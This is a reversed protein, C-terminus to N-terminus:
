WLRDTALKVGEYIWGTMTKRRSFREAMRRGFDKASLRDHRALRQKDAWRQYADYFESARVAADTSYECAHEIFEGLADSDRQYENTANLVSLPADLGRAQWELCGRIAWQLIGPGENFLKAELQDDRTSGDFSQTFPILRIRRWFGPSDDHVSPKHNVALLFKACPQFTFWEGHLFRASIPDSGTLAKVRAENLRTGDNTESATVFRKGALAALDNPISQRQREITGFPMNHAYDGFVRALVNLLTSKGNAGLGHLLALVQERTEGTLCYGIFRQVFRIQDLQGSFIESLFAEFRPCTADSDFPVGVAFTIRDAAVGPRLGGTRLDIVGNPAGLLWPDADWGAGSDALPEFNKALGILKELFSKTEAQIAFKAAAHKQRRDPVELARAQEQRVFALAHRVIAGDADRRWAHPAFEFWEGRNHLFRLRDAFHRAFAEAYQAETPQDPPAEAHPRAFPTVTM